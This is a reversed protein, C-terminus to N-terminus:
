LCYYGIWFALPLESIHLVWDIGGFFAVVTEFFLLFPLSVFLFLKGLPVFVLGFIAGLSGFFMIVPITWLVLANVLLSLLGFQGFVGLLIPLTGLQAALTTTFSEGLVGFKGLRRDFIPKLFLIGLTALFSLQFGVDFLFGPQWLLLVYGSVLVAFVAFYQKGLLSAGFALLGMLSARLISPEFGVLFVYFIIGLCGIVLALQRKLFAGLTFLLAASVFTVNMGSAAIVHLVGTTQLANWFDDPFQERAGFVMGMLLSSSVPPLASEYLAKTRQRIHQALAAVSNAAEKQVLIKPQYLLYITREESVQKADLKGSIDLM